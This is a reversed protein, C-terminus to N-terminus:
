RPSPSYSCIGVGVSLAFSVLLRATLSRETDRRYLRNLAGMVTRV